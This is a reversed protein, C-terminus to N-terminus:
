GRRLGGGGVGNAWAVLDPEFEGGFVQEIGAAHLTGANLQAYLGYACLRAGPHVRRARAVLPLALRTATHMPLYFGIVDASRLQGDTLTDRSVDVCEATWGAAKLWAAPSALGFPQRGM